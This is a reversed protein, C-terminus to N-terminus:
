IPESASTSSVHSISRKTSSSRVRRRYSRRRPSKIKWSPGGLDLAKYGRSKELEPLHVTHNTEYVGITTMRGCIPCFLPREGSGHGPCTAMIGGKSIIGVCEWGVRISPM